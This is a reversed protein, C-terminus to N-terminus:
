ETSASGGAVAAQDPANSRPSASAKTFRMRREHTLSSLERARDDNPALLAHALPTAPTMESATIPLLEVESMAAVILRLLWL